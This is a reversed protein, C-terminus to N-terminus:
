AAAVVGRDLHATVTEDPFPKDLERVAEIVALENGLEHFVESLPVGLAACIAALLESSAEKQGREIESLYGLSVRAAAAVDRLTRGQEIRRRRLVAGLAERLIAM